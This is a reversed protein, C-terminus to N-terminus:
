KRKIYHKRTKKNRKKTSRKKTRKSKRLRTGGKNHTTQRHSTPRDYPTKSYHKRSPAMTMRTQNYGVAGQQLSSNSLVYMEKGNKFRREITGDIPNCDYKGDKNNFLNEYQEESIYFEGTVGTQDFIFLFDTIIESGSITEGNINYKKNLYYKFNCYLNCLFLFYLNNFPKYYDTIHEYQDRFAIIKFISIINEYLRINENKGAEANEGRIDAILQLFDNTFKRKYNMERYTAMSKRMDGKDYATLNSQILQILKIRNETTLFDYNMDENLLFDFKSPSAM